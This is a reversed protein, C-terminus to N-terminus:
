CMALCTFQILTIKWLTGWWWQQTCHKSQKHTGNGKHKCNFYICSKPTTVATIRHKTWNEILCTSRHQNKTKYRFFTRAELNTQKKKLQLLQNKGERFLKHQRNGQKPRHQSKPMLVTSTFLLSLMQSEPCSQGTRYVELVDSSGHSEFACRPLYNQQHTLLCSIWGQVHAQAPAATKCATFCLVVEKAM